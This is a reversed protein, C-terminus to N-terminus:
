FENTGLDDYLNLAAGENGQTVLYLVRNTARIYEHQLGIMEDLKRDFKTRQYELLPKDAQESLISIIFQNRSLKDKESRTKNIQELQQDIKNILREDIGKINLNRRKNM